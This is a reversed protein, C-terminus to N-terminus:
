ADFSLSEKYDQQFEKDEIINFIRTAEEYGVMKKLKVFTDAGKKPIYVCSNAM